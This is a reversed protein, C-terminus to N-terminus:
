HIAKYILLEGTNEYPVKGLVHGDPSVFYSRFGSSM